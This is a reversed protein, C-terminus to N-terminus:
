DVRGPLGSLSIDFKRASSLCTTSSPPVSVSSCPRAATMSISSPSAASTSIADSKVAIAARPSVASSSAPNTWAIRVSTRGTGRLSRFAILQDIGAAGAPIVPSGEIDRGARCQHRGRGACLYGLVAVAAQGRFASRRIHELCQAHRDFQLRFDGDLAQARRSEHKEVSGVQVRRMFRTCGTRRASPKRVMKLRAPGSVLGAPALACTIPTKEGPPDGHNCFGHGPQAHTMGHDDMPHVAQVFDSQIPFAKHGFDPIAGHAEEAHLGPIGAELLSGEGSKSAPVCLAIGRNQLLDETALGPGLPVDHQQVRRRREADGAQRLIKGVANPQRPPSRSRHPCQPQQCM